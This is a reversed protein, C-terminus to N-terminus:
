WGHVKASAILLLAGIAFAILMGIFSGVVHARGRPNGQTGRMNKGFDGINQGFLLALIVATAIFAVYSNDVNAIMGSASPSGYVVYAVGLGIFILRALTDKFLVFLLALGGLVVLYDLNIIM